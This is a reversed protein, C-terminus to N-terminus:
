LRGTRMQALSITGNRLQDKYYRREARIEKRKESEAVEDRHCQICIGGVMRFTEHECKPCIIGSSREWDKQDM